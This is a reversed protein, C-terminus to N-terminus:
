DYKRSIDYSDDYSKRNSTKRGNKSEVKRNKFKIKIYRSIIKLIIGMNDALKFRLIGNFNVKYLEDSIYSSYYLSNMNYHDINSNIYMCLTTNLSAMLFSNTIPEDLNIGLKLNFKEYYITKNIKAIESMKILSKKMKSNGLLEMFLSYLTNLVYNENSNKIEFKKDKEQLKINKDKNKKNINIKLIPLFYLIKLLIYDNNGQSISKKTNKRPVAAVNYKINIRMPVFFIAFLIILIVLIVYM